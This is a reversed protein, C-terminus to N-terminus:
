AARPGGVTRATDGLKDGVLAAAGQAQVLMPSLVTREQATWGSPRSEDLLRTLATMQDLATMLRYRLRDTLPGLRPDSSPEGRAMGHAALSERPHELLFRHGAGHSKEFLTVLKAAERSSLGHRRISESVAPQNGRPLRAVERAVTVSVLGTRVDMAVTDSLREVLSLRRSVWSKHRRLLEAVQTQDLGHDRVLARVVMAEELDLLGRSACANLSYIAAIAAATEIALVRVRLRSLELARAAALRKFGDILVIAGGDAHAMVATLQGLRRLSDRVAREHQPQAIRFLGYREDLAGLELECEPQAM